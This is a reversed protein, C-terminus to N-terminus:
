KPLKAFYPEVVNKLGDQLSLRRGRLHKKNQFDPSYHLGCKDIIEKFFRTKHVRCKDHLLLTKESFNKLSTDLHHM